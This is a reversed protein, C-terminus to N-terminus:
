TLMMLKEPNELSSVIEEMFRVADAGDAIRQDFRLTMPLMLRTKIHHNNLDGIVMPKLRAKAMSLVAAQHHQIIPRFATGGRSGFNIITFSGSILDEQKFKGKRTKDALASFEIALDSISKCDAERIVPVLLGQDTDVALGINYYHKLIIEEQEMDISANFRPHIKLAAVAAKIIFVTLTLAGGKKEIEAKHNRRFVELETIDAVDEYTVHPIQSWFLQMDGISARRASRISIREVEGWQSFDPLAYDKSVVL